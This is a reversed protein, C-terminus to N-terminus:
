VELVLVAPSMAAAKGEDPAARGEGWCGNVSLNKILKEGAIWSVLKPLEALHMEIVIFIM